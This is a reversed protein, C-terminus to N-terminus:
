QKRVYVFQEQGRRAILLGVTRGSPVARLLQSAETASTVAQGNVKLIVDGPTLARAAPSDPDVDTVV